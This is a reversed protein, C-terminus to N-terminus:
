SKWNGSRRCQALWQARARGGACSGLAMRKVLKAPPPSFKAAAQKVAACQMKIRAIEHEDTDVAVLSHVEAATETNQPTRVSTQLIQLAARINCSDMKDSARMTDAKLTALHAHWRRADVECSSLDRVYVRLLETWAGTEALTAREGALKISLKGRMGPTLEQGDAHESGEYALLTPGLWARRAAAVEAQLSESDRRETWHHHCHTHHQLLKKPITCTRQRLGRAQHRITRMAPLSTALEM